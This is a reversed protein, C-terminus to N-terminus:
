AMNMAAAIREGPLHMAHACAAAAAIPGLTSKSHRGALYHGFGLAEGLRVIVEHGVM